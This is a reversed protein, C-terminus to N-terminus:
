QLPLLSTEGCGGATGITRVGVEELALLLQLPRLSQQTQSCTQERQKGKVVAFCWLSFLCVQLETCDDLRRVPRGGSVEQRALDWLVVLPPVSSTFCSTVFVHFSASCQLGGEEIAPLVFPYLSFLM